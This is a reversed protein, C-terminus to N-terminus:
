PAPQEMVRLFEEPTVIRLARFRKQFERGAAQDWKMLDLLDNDRSVLYDAAVEIALNIYPEDDPDRPYSFHQSVRRLYIGHYVLREYLAAIREDTLLPYKQRLHSRSLVETVEAFTARSIALIIKGQEFYELCRVAAGSTNALAQLFVNTDFVVVYKDDM